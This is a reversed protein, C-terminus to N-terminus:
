PTTKRQKKLKTSQKANNTPQHPNNRRQKAMTTANVISQGHIVTTAQPTSWPTSPRNFMTGDVIIVM